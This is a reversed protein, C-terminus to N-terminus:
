PCINENKNLFDLMKVNKCHGDIFLFNCSNDHKDFGIEKVETDVKNYNYARCRIRGHYSGDALVFYSPTLKTIKSSYRVTSRFPFFNQVGTMSTHAGYTWTRGYFEVPAIKPPASPCRMYHSGFGNGATNRGVYPSINISWTWPKTSTSEALSPLFGGFSNAYMLLGMGGQKLNSLCSIRKAKGRAKNLAPLLMSALISIIAIVVLLEILTFYHWCSSRRGMASGHNSTLLGDM